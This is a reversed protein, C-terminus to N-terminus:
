VKRSKLVNEVQEVKKLIHNEDKKINKTTKRSKRSEM